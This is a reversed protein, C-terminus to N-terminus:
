RRLLTQAHQAHCSPIQKAMNSQRMHSRRTEVEKQEHTVVKEVQKQERTVVKEIKGFSQM